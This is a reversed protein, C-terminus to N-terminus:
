NGKKFEPSSKYKEIVSNNTGIDNSLKTIQEKSNILSTSVTKYESDSVCTIRAYTSWVIGVSLGLLIALGIKKKWNCIDKLIKIIM